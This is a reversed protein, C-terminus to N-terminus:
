QAAPSLSQQLQKQRFNAGYRVDKNFSDKQSPLLESGAASATRPADFRGTENPQVFRVGTAIDALTDSRWAPDPEQRLLTRADELQDYSVLANSFSALAFRRTDKVPIKRAWQGGSILLQVAEAKGRREFAVQSLSLVYQARQSEPQVSHLAEVANLYADAATKDDKAGHSLEAISTWGAIRGFDDLTKKDTEEVRLTAAALALTKIAHASDGSQIQLDAINLQRTLRQSLSPIFGAEEAAMTLLKGSRTTDVPGCATLLLALSTLNVVIMLRTPFRM